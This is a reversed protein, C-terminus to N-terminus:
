AGFGISETGIFKNFPAASGPSLWHEADVESGPSRIFSAIKHLVAIVSASGKIAIQARFVTVLLRVPDFEPTQAIFHITGPLHALLCGIFIAAGRSFSGLHHSQDIRGELEGGAPRRMPIHRREASPLVFNQLM